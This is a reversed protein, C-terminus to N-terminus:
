VASTCVSLSVTCCSYVKWSCLTSSLSQVAVESHPSYSLRVGPVITDKPFLVTPWATIHVCANPSWPFESWQMISTGWCKGTLCTLVVAFAVCGFIITLFCVLFFVFVFFFVFLCFCVFVFFFFFVFDTWRVVETFARSAMRPHLQVCRRERNGEFCLPPQACDLSAKWEVKDTANQHLSTCSEGVATHVQGSWTETGPGELGVHWSLTFCPCVETSVLGLIFIKM